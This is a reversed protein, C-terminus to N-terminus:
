ATPSFLVIYSTDVKHARHDGMLRALVLKIERLLNLNVTLNLNSVVFEDDRLRPRPKPERTPDWICEVHLFGDMKPLRSIEHKTSIRRYRLFEPSSLQSVTM